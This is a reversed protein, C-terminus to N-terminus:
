QAPKPLPIDAYTFQGTLAEMPVPRLPPRATWLGATERGGVHGAVLEAVAEGCSRGQCPGMGCRTWSKLQNMDAAGAALAADIDRRTVDECRCVITDPAIAAAQAPRVAMLRAMAGGARRARALRRTLSRPVPDGTLHHAVIEGELAAAVAGSIGAGDGIVWVGAVDTSFDAARRAIWGGREPRYLHDVGLMRTVETAPVLGHGVALADAELWTEGGDQMRCPAIAVRSLGEPGPEVERIEQGFHLPVGAARIRRMWGAGRALLDPRAMLGPLARAWDTLHATDVMAAVEGGAKLIGWTVAALLPGCGAVVTRRGPLAAQSKLLITAAALGIVGPTTWGRFPMIRETAGTAVILRPARYTENGDPGAAQVEHGPTLMWVRRGFRCIVASEALEARLGDGTRADVDGRPLTLGQAPARYVQGGPAPAEDLILTRLGRRAAGLAASIGAPGAGLVILDATEAM